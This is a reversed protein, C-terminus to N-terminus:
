TDGRDSQRARRLTRYYDELWRTSTEERRYTWHAIDHLLRGYDAPVGTSGLLRQMAPLMRHLGDTEQRVLLHLRSEIGNERNRDSIVAQALSTGLSTGWTPKQEATTTAAPPAGDPPQKSVGPLQETTGQDNSTTEAVREARPRAAILAAVAYYARREEGKAGDPVLGGRLLAAHTRAPVEHVPKALGRRLAQQAGPSTCAKRVREVFSDCGTLRAHRPAPPAPNESPPTHDEDTANM